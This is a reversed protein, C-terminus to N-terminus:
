HLLVDGERLVHGHPLREEEVGEEPLRAGERAGSVGLPADVREDLVEPEALDLVRAHGIEGHGLPLPQIHGAM